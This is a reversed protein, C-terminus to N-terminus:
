PKIAWTKGYIRIVRYFSDDLYCKGTKSADVSERVGQLFEERISEDKTVLTPKNIRVRGGVFVGMEMNLKALKSGIQDQVAKDRRKLYNDEFATFGQDAMFQIEDLPNDGAHNQFMGTHPAFKLTFKPKM